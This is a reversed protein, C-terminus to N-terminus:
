KTTQRVRILNSMRFKYNTMRSLNKVTYRLESANYITRFGYGTSEDNMELAFKNVDAVPKSWILSLSSITAKELKPPEPTPPPVGSTYHTISSSWDSFFFVYLNLTSHVLM